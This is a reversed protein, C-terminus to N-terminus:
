MFVHIYKHNVSIRYEITQILLGNENKKKPPLHSLSDVHPRYFDTESDEQRIADRLLWEIKKTKELLLELEM